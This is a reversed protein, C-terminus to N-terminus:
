KVCFGLTKLFTKCLQIWQRTYICPESVPRTHEIEEKCVSMGHWGERFIHLEVPVGANLYAEYLRLSNQPPVCTDPTNAWIFAPKCAPRVKKDISYDDANVAKGCFNEFSGLHAIKPDSSIVAYSYVSADPRVKVCEDGFLDRVAPDDWLTSICGLLHGGASFGIAAIKDPLIHFQEANKRIYMMAMAAQTIQVPYTLPAIDYQLVFVDYGEVFYEWAVPDAERQSVFGYGGGPIVLMAPRHAAADGMEPMASHRYVVLKGNKEDKRKLGFYSLLDITETIM